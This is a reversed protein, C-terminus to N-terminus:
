GDVEELWARVPASRDADPRRECVALLGRVLVLYLHRFDPNAKDLVELHRRLTDVDGRVVPGTLADAVGRSTANGIAGTMLMGLGDMALEEPVGAQEFAARALDLVAIVTNGAVSAGLHYAARADPGLRFARGGMRTALEHLTTEFPPRAEIAVLVGGLDGEGPDRSPFSRLPHVAGTEVGLDAVPSLVDAGHSGSLHVVGCGDGFTSGVLARAADALADDPVGVIILTGPEFGQPPDPTWPVDGLVERAADAGPRSGGSLGRVSLGCRKGIAAFSTAARGPGHLHLDHM